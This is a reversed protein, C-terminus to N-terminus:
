ISWLNTIKRFILSIKTESFSPLYQSSAWGTHYKYSFNEFNLSNLLAYLFGYLHFVKGIHHKDSSM